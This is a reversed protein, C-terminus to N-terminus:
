LRALTTDIPPQYKFYLAVPTPARAVLDSLAVYSLKRSSLSSEVVGLLRSHSFRSYVYKIRGSRISSSQYLPDRNAVSSLPVSTESPWAVVLHFGWKEEKM